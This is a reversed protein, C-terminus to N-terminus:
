GDEVEYLKNTLPDYEYIGDELEWRVRTGHRKGGMRSEILTDVNFRVKDIDWVPMSSGLQKQADESAQKMKESYEARVKVKEMGYILTDVLSGGASEASVNSQIKKGDDNTWSLQTQMNVKKSRGKMFDKLLMKLEYLNRVKVPENAQQLAKKKMDDTVYRAM